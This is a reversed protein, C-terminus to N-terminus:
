SSWRGAIVAFVTLIDIGRQGLVGSTRVLMVVTDVTLWLGFAFGMSEILSDEKRRLGLLEGVGIGPLPVFALYSIYGLM